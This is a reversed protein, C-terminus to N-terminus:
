CSFICLLCLNTKMHCCDHKGTYGVNQWNTSTGDFYTIVTNQVELVGSTGTRLWNFRIWDTGDWKFITHFNVEQTQRQRALHNREECRCAFGWLSREQMCAVYTIHFQINLSIHTSYFM